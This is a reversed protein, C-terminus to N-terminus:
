PAATIPADLSEPTASPTLTSATASASPLPSLAAKPTPQPSVKAVQPLDPTTLPTQVKILAIPVVTSAQTAAPEPTATALPTPVLTPEPSPKEEPTPTSPVLVETTATAPPPVPVNTDTAATLGPQPPIPDLGLAVRAKDFDPRPWVSEDFNDGITDMAKKAEADLHNEVCFKATQNWLNWNTSDLALLTQYAALM